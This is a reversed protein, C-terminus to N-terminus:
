VDNKITIIGLDLLIYSVFSLLYYKNKNDYIDEEKKFVKINLDSINDIEFDDFGLKNLKNIMEITAYQIKYRDIKSLKYNKDENVYKKIDKITYDKSKEFCSITYSEICPYSLLLLGSEYEENDYPNKLKLLLKEVIEKKNSGNDRDWIYYLPCNKLDLNYKEYAMKYVADRYENDDEITGINSNKTNIIIFKSNENDKMVYENYEKYISQNRSKTILKYKLIHRFIMNFLEFEYDAGEVVLVVPGVNKKFNIKLSRITDLCEM